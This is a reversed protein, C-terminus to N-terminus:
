TNGVCLLADALGCWRLSCPSSMGLAARLKLAGDVVRGAAVMSGATYPLVFLTAATGFLAM